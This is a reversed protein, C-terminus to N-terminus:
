RSFKLPLLRSGTVAPIDGTQSSNNVVTKGSFNALDNGASDEVGSGPQTYALTGSEGLQVTRNGSYVLSASGSGSVYTLTVAGGSMSTAFGGNGGAGISVSESMAFTWTTGDASITCTNVTPATTDSTDTRLNHPYTYKTYGSKSSTFYDRSVQIYDSAADNNTGENLGSDSVTIGVTGTNNWIYMPESDGVYDYGDNTRGLGDVGSGTVYGFGIQRPCHYQIGGINAGWLPNPGANRDINQISLDIEPKNNWASSDIDDFANDTVVGTGGRLLLWRNLNMTELDPSGGVATFVCTNNYFELHRVGINSTDAGHTGGCSAENFTCYRVVARGDDDVDFSTMLADFWCDEVYFNAIGNTDATGMTSATTWSGTLGEIKLGETDTSGAALCVFDCDWVIGRNVTTSIAITSGECGIWNDHILVPKYNTGGSTISIHNGSGTGRIFRIGSIEASHTSHDTFAFLVGAGANHTIETTANRTITWLMKTGSGSSSTVNITLSTGSYSTVTGEMYPRNGTSTGSSNREGGTLWIRLTQGNSISLGSQTTFTKSGTGITTSTKSSGVVEGAGAGEIKVGNSITVGSTWTLSGAPITVTDGPSAGSIKTQVDSQSGDSNYTTAWVQRTYFLVGVGGVGAIACKVFERRTYTM